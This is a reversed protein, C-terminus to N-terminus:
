QWNGEDWRLQGWLSGTAVSDDDLVTVAVDDVDGPSLLSYGPDNTAANDVDVAVSVNRTGDVTSNDVVSVTVTQAIAWNGSSFTLNASGAPAGGDASVRVATADGSSVGIVVEAAPQSALVVTFTATGDPEEVSVSSPSIAVGPVGLVPEMVVTGADSTQGATVVVGSKSGEYLVLTGVLGQLTVTRNSGAPVGSVTGQGAAAPFDRSISPSIGEGSVIVRVTTVFAPAAAVTRAAAQGEGPWIAQVAISGTGDDGPGGGCGFLLLMVLPAWWRGANGQM